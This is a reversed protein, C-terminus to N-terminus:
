LLFGSCFEEAQAKHPTDKRCGMHAHHEENCHNITMSLLLQVLTSTSYQLVNYIVENTLSGSYQANVQVVSVSKTSTIHTLDEGHIHISAADLM